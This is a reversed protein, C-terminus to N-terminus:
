EVEVVVAVLFDIRDIGVVVVVLVSGLHNIRDVGIGSGFVSEALVLVPNMIRNLREVVEVAVAVPYM